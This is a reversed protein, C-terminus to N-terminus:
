LDAHQFLGPVDLRNVMDTFIEGVATEAEGRGMLKYREAQGSINQSAIVKGDKVLSAKYNMKAVWKRDVLDLLFENLTISIQPKGHLQIFLVELGLNELRRKFAERMLESVQYVGMKSEPENKRTLSFSINGSFNNFEKLAGQGLIKKNTRDDKFVLVVRKGKLEKSRPPLQYQVKLQPISACSIIFPSFLMITLIRVLVQNTVKM